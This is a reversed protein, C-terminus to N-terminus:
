TTIKKKSQKWKVYSYFFGGFTNVLLGLINLFNLKIGGFLILGLAITGFNKLHGVVTTTLPSNVTTCFFM